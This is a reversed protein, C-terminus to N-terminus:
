RACGEKKEPSPPVTTNLPTTTTTHLELRSRGATGISRNDPLNNSTPEHM